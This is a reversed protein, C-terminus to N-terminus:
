EVTRNAAAQLRHVLEQSRELQASAADMQQRLAYVEGARAEACAEARGRLQEAMAARARMDAVLGEIADFDAVAAARAREHEGCSRRAGDAAERASVLEEEGAARTRALLESLLRTQAAARRSDDEARAIRGELRGIRAGAAGHDRAQEEIRLTNHATAARANEWATTADRLEGRSQALEAALVAREGAAEEYIGRLEANKTREALLQQRLDATARLSADATSAATTAHFDGGGPQQPPPPPENGLAHDADREANALEEAAAATAAASRMRGRHILSFGEELAAALAALAVDPANHKEPAGASPPNSPIPVMAMAVAGGSSGAAPSVGPPALSAM